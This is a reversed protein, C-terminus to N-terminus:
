PLYVPSNSYPRKNNRAKKHTNTNYVKQFRKQRNEWLQILVIFRRPCLSSIAIVNTNVYNTCLYLNRNTHSNYKIM